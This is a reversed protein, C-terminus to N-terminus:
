KAIIDLFEWFKEPGTIEQVCETAEAKYGAFPHRSLIPSHRYVYAYEPHEKLIDEIIPKAAKCFPCDVDSYEIIVIESNLIGRYHDNDNLVVWQDKSTLIDGGPQDPPTVEDAISKLFIEKNRAGVISWQKEKILEDAPGIIRKIIIFTPTGNVGTQVALKMANDIAEEQTGKDLCAELQGTPVGIKRATSLLDKKVSEETELPPIPNGAYDVTPRTSVSKSLVIGGGILAGAIIISFFTQYKQFFTPQMNSLYLV